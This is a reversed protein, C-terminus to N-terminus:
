DGITKYRGTMNIPSPEHPKEPEKFFMGGEKIMNKIFEIELKCETDRKLNKLICIGSISDIELIQYEVTNTKDNGIILALIDNVQLDRESIRIM